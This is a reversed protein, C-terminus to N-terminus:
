QLILAWVAASKQAWCYENTRSTPWARHGRRFHISKSQPHTTKLLCLSLTVYTIFYTDLIVQMDEVFLKGVYLPVFFLPM